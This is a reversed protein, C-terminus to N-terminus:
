TSGPRPLPSAPLLLRRFVFFARGPHTVDRPRMEWSRALTAAAPPVPGYCTSRALTVFLANTALLTGRPRLASGSSVDRADM